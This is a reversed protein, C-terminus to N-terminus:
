KVALYNVRAQELVRAAEEQGYWGQIVVSKGELDKYTQFFHEIERLVHPPVDSLDKVHVFRPDKVPIGLLKNDVGKDDAMSLVGVVRTDILCGPVTPNTIMVLIDIPDGDDELTEPIYGYDTPYHVPSYLVRDLRLVGKEKDFEYKNQSGAPIEILAEVILEGM